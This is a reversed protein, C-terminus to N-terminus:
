RIRDRLAAKVAPGAQLAGLVHVSAITERALEAPVDEAIIALFPELHDQTSGRM